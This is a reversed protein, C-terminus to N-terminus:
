NQHKKSYKQTKDTKQIKMYQRQSSFCSQSLKWTTKLKEPFNWFLWIQLNVQDSLLSSICLINYLTDWTFSFIVFYVWM